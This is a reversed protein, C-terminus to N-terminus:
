SCRIPHSQCLCIQLLHYKKYKRGKICITKNTPKSFILFLRSPAELKPLILILFSTNAPKVTAMVMIGSDKDNAIRAPSVGRVPKYAAKKIPITVATRPPRGPITDPPAPAVTTTNIAKTTECPTSYRNAATTKAPTRCSRTPRNLSPLNTRSMGCGTIYPKKFPRATM